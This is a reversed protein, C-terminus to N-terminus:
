HFNLEANLSTDADPTDSAAGIGGVGYGGNYFGGNYYGGYGGLGGGYNTGGSQLDLTSQELNQLRRQADRIRRLEIPNGAANAAYIKQQQM